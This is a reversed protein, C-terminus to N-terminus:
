AVICVHASATKRNLMKEILLHFEEAVETASKNGSEIKQILCFTKLQSHIFPLWLCSKPNLFQKLLTACKDQSMFIVQIM